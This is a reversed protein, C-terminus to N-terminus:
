PAPLAPAVSKYAGDPDERDERAEPNKVAATGRLRADRGAM